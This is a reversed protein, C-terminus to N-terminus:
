YPILKEWDAGFQRRLNASVLERYELGAWETNGMEAIAQLIREGRRRETEAEDPSYDDDQSFLSCGTLKMVISALSGWHHDRDVAEFGIQECLAAFLDRALRAIEKLDIGDLLTVASQFRGKAWRPAGVVLRFLGAKAMDERIIRVTSASMECHKGGWHASHEVSGLRDLDKTTTGRGFAKSASRDAFFLIQSIVTLAAQQRKVTYTTLFDEIAFERESFNPSNGTSYQYSKLTM